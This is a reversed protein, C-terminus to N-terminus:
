FNLILIYQCRFCSEFYDMNGILFFLRHYEESDVTCDKEETLKEWFTDSQSQYATYSCIEAPLSLAKINSTSKVFGMLLGWLMSISLHSYLPRPNYFISNLFRTNDETLTDWLKFSRVLEMKYGTNTSAADGNTLARAVQQPSELM